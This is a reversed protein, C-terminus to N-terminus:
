RIGGAVSVIFAEIIMIGAGYVICILSLFIGLITIVGPKRITRAINIILLYVSCIIILLSFHRIATLLFFLWEDSFGPEFLYIGLSILSFVLGIVLIVFVSKSVKSKM